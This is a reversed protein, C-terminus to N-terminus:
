VERGRLCKNHELVVCTALPDGCSTESRNNLYFTLLDQYSPGKVEPCHMMHMQLKLKTEFTQNCKECKISNCKFKKNLHYQLAQDTTLSKGCRPCIPM